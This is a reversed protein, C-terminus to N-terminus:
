QPQWSNFEATYRIDSPSTLLAPAM